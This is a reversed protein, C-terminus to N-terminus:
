RGSRFYRFLGHVQFGGGCALLRTVACGRSDRAAMSLSTRTEQLYEDFVPEMAQYMEGLRESQGPNRKLEEAQSM